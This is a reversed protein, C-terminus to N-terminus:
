KAKRPKQLRWWRCNKEVSFDAIGLDRLHWLAVRVSYLGIRKDDVLLESQVDAVTGGHPMRSLADRVDVACLYSRNRQSIQPKDLLQAM